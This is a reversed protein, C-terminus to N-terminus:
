FADSTDRKAGEESLDFGIQNRMYAGGFCEWPRCCFSYSTPLLEAKKRIYTCFQMQGETQARDSQLFEQQLLQAKGLDKNIIRM